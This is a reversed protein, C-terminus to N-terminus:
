INEKIKKINEGLKEIKAFIDSKKKSKPKPM